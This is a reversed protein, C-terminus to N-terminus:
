AHTRPPKLPPAQTLGAIHRFKAIRLSVTSPVLLAAPADAGAIMACAGSSCTFSFACSKQLPAEQGCGSAHAADGPSSVTHDCNHVSASVGGTGLVGLGLLLGFIMAIVVRTMSQLISREPGSDKIHSLCRQWHRASTVGETLPLGGLRDQPYTSELTM